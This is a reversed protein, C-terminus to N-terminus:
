YYHFKLGCEKIGFDDPATRNKKEEILRAKYEGEVSM